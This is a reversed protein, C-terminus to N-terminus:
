VAGRSVPEGRDALAQNIAALDDMSLQWNMAEATERIQEPRKAGCLATTIGPQQITWNIVIDAVTRGLGDAIERLRAVFDQNRQWEDGQFMPYKVRGDGAAFVHDRPLKGALLGKLLPWYVATAVNHEICWPLQATEIERQLMNYHPQYAALPCVSQFEALQGVTANSLGASLVKGSDIMQRIAAASEAIPVEPDPAHLYYLEVRDTGLRQLSEDCERLLREPSGDHTNKGNEWHLGGKTAIVIEDRHGGLVRGIMQESEGEFGYCYATDFFNIGADFAAQLTAESQEVTVDLSTIGTIPWCGMAVSTVEIGSNGLARRV